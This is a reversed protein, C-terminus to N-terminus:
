LKYNFFLSEPFGNLHDVHLIDVQTDSKRYQCNLQLGIAAKKQQLLDPVDLFREKFCLNSTNM